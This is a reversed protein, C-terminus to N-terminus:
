CGDVLFHLARKSNEDKYHKNLQMKYKELEEGKAGNNILYQMAEVDDQAAAERIYEYGKSVNTPVTEYSFAFGRINLIGMYFKAKASNQKLASQLMEYGLAPKRTWKKGVYYIWAANVKADVDGKESAKLFYALANEEDRQGQRKYLLTGYLNMAEANGQDAAYKM